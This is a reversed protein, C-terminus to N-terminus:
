TFLFCAASELLSPFHFLCQALFLLEQRNEEVNTICDRWSLDAVKIKICFSCIMNTIKFWSGGVDILKKKETNVVRSEIKKKRTSYERSKPHELIAWCLLEACIEPFIQFIIFRVLPIQKLPLHLVCATALTSSLYFASQQRVVTNKNKFYEKFTWVKYYLYLESFYTVLFMKPFGNM